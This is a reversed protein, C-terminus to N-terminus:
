MVFPFLLVGFTQAAREVRRLAVLLEVAVADGALHQERIGVRDGAARRRREARAERGGVDRVGLEREGARTRVVAEEGVEARVARFPPGTDASTGIM